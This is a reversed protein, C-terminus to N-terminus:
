STLNPRLMRTPIPGANGRSVPNVGLGPTIAIRPGLQRREEDHWVKDVGEM